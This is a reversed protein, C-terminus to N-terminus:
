SSTIILFRPHNFLDKKIEAHFQPPVLFRNIDQESDIELIIQFTPKLHKEVSSLFSNIIDTGDPGGDLATLPEYDKVSSDLTFIRSSPIYPLNAIVLDFKQTPPYSKLLDSKLFHLKSLDDPLLRNTNIKTLKLAEDSIDSLWLDFDRKSRHLLSYALSLGLCGSGTGIDAIDLHFSVNKLFNMSMSIIQESELRPILVSSDVLFDLGCFPAHGTLHEVPKEGFTTLDLHSLGYKRLQNLEYASFQRKPM